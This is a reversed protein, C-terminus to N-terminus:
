VQENVSARIQDFTRVLDAHKARCVQLRQRDTRWQRLAENGDTEQRAWDGPGQCPIRQSPSIDPLRVLVPQPTTSCASCVIFSMM